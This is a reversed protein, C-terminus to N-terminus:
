GTKLVNFSIRMRSVQVADKLRGFASVQLCPRSWILVIEEDLKIRRLM